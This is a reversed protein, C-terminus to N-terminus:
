GVLWADSIRWGAATRTLVMGVRAEGRGPVQAVPATAPGAASVVRYGPLEDDLRLEVRDPSQRAVSETRVVAPTFDALREGDAALAEVQERDRALLASGAAYVETLPAPDAEQFAAARRAYLVSVVASWGDPDVPDAQDAQDAPVAPPEVPGPAADQDDRAGPSTSAPATGPPDPAPPPAAPSPTPQAGPGRASEAAPAPEGARGGWATGAWVAAALGAVVVVLAVAVAGARRLVAGLWPGTGEEAGVRSRLATRLRDLRGADAPAAHVARARRGAVQHTLETQPGQGTGALEADPVGPAPLRVPEPRCAHRVDLAFAAASGRLHPEPSLGRLVVRVLEAPAEPALLALDPLAGDAAVSLTGTPDAANWPATGTLAHFAAAAVGFVDSAPGPAGGRAVVPDVYPPTVEARADDGVLRATGLDTLVPRGEATFVINGPSLDGHVVGREHAQALAAAVPAVTTVVEGPRLRGRRALLAALSGGDLLDLVLAVEAPGTRVERRVVHHLRVLHPHDLEALLRAEREQREPDGRLLVKVAVPPGGGRPRARWVQGSGGRGLLEELVYGPVVPAPTPLPPAPM